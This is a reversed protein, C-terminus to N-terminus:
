QKMQFVFHKNIIINYVPSGGEEGECGNTFAFITRVCLIQEYHTASKSELVAATHTIKQRRAFQTKM